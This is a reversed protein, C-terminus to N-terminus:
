IESKREVQRESDSMREREDHREMERGTERM